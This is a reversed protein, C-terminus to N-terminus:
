QRDEGMVHLLASAGESPSGLSAAAPGVYLDDYYVDAKGETGALKEDYRVEFLIRVKQFGQPVAGWLEEFDRAIPREFHVWQGTPPEETSLFRFKANTIAFPEASIGALPYRIQYNPYGGPLNTAGFVIVVFQLYQKPIGKIWADVYYYGSLVEPFRDPSIEQVVGFVKSGTADPPAALGLYASHAGSHGLHSSVSFPKGWAATTLSISPDSGGEFSGNKFLNAALQVGAEPTGQAAPSGGCAAGLAASAMAILVVFTKTHM